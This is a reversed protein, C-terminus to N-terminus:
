AAIHLVEQASEVFKAWEDETLARNHAYLILDEKSMTKMNEKSAETETLTITIVPSAEKVRRKSLKKPLTAKEQELREKVSKQFAIDAEIIRDEPNHIVIIPVHADRLIAVKSESDLKWGFQEALWSSPRGVVSFIKQITSTLSSFSRDNCLAIKEGSEAHRASVQTAVAGGLSTGYLLINEPKVGQNLLHQVMADGDAILDQDGTPFGTSLGVGRYNCSLVNAGVDKALKALFHHEKEWSSANKHLYIIWKQDEPKQTLRQARLEIGNLIANDTSAINVESVAGLHDLQNRQTALTAFPNQLTTVLPSKMAITIQAQALKPQNSIVSAIIAEGRLPKIHAGAKFQLDTEQVLLLNVGKKKYAEIVVVLKADIVAKAPIIVVEFEKKDNFTFSYYHLKDKTQGEQCSSMYPSLLEQIPPSAATPAARKSREYETLPIKLAPLILETVNKAMTGPTKVQVSKKGIPPTHTAQTLAPTIAGLKKSAEVTKKQLPTTAEYKKKKIAPLFGSPEEKGINKPLADFTESM